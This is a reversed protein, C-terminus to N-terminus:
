KSTEEPKTYEDFLEGQITAMYWEHCVSHAKDIWDLFDDKDNLLPTNNSAVEFDFVVLEQEKGNENKKGTALRFAGEAGNPESLLFSTSANFDKIIQKEAVKGPLYKPFEIKTNLNKTMFNSLDESSFNFPVGNRYTLSILDIQLTKEEYASVIAKRLFEAEKKFDEWSCPSKFNLTAVGPGIQLLPWQEQQKRFQYRVAHPTIELPAQNASLEKRFKYEERVLHDFRGLAIPFLDDRKIPPNESIVDLKWRIVLWAEVLSSCSFDVKKPFHFVSKVM